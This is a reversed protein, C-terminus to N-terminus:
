NVLKKSELLDSNKYLYDDVKVHMHCGPTSLGQIQHIKKDQMNFWASENLKMTNLADIM